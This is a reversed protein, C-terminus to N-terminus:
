RERTHQNEYPFGSLKWEKGELFYVGDLVTGSFVEIRIVRPDIDTFLRVCGDYNVTCLKVLHLKGTRTEVFYEIREVATMLDDRGKISLPEGRMHDAQSERVIRSIMAADTEKKKM